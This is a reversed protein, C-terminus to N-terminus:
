NPFTAPRIVRDVEWAEGRLSLMYSNLRRGIDARCTGRETHELTTGDIQYWVTGKLVEGRETGYRTTGDDYRRTTKLIRSMLASM